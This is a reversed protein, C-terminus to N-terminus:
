EKILKKRIEGKDTVVQVFYIGKAQESLNITTQINNVTAFYIEEGLLNFVKIEKGGKNTNYKKKLTLLFSPLHKKVQM